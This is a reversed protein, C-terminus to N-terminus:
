WDQLTDLGVSTASAVSQQGKEALWQDRKWRNLHKGFFDEKVREADRLIGVQTDLCSRWDAQAPGNNQTCVTPMCM